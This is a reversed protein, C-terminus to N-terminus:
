QGQEVSGVAEEEVYEIQPNKSLAVAAAEPLSVAFGRIVNEYIFKVEGGHASALSLAEGAIRLRSVASDKFVVIYNNPNGKEVRRFKGVNDDKQAQVPTLNPILFFFTLAIILTLVRKSM